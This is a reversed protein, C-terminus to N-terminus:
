PRENIYQRATVYSDDSVKLDGGFPEGFVLVLYLNISIILTILGTM